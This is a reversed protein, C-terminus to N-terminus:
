EPFRANVTVSIHGNLIQGWNARLVLGGRGNGKGPGERQWAVGLLPKLRALTWILCVAVM